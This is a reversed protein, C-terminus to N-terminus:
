PLDYSFGFGFRTPGFYEFINGFKRFLEPDDNWDYYFGPPSWPEAPHYGDYEAHLYGLGLNVEWKWHSRGIRHVYGWGVGAGWARGFSDCLWARTASRQIDFEGVNGYLSLYHGTFSARGRFYYRGELVLDHVIFTRLKNDNRLGIGSWEAMATLHGGRPLFELAVNPISLLNTKVNIIPRRPQKPGAAFRTPDAPSRQPKIIGSGIGELPPIPSLKETLRKDVLSVVLVVRAARLEPYWDNLLQRWLRGEHAKQLMPKIMGPDDCNELINLVADAYPPKTEYMLRRLGLYDEEIFIEELCSPCCRALGAVSDALARARGHALRSNNMFRGEPSASGRIIMKRVVVLDDQGLRRLEDMLKIYGSEDPEIDTQNVKFVVSIAREWIESDTLEPVEADHDIVLVFPKCQTQAHVMVATFSLFLPLAVTLLKKYHVTM